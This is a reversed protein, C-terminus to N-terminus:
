RLGIPDWAAEFRRVGGRRRCNRQAIRGPIPKTRPVAESRFQSREPFSKRASNAEKSFSRRQVGPASTRRLAGYWPGGRADSSRSGLGPNAENPSPEQALNVDKGSVPEPCIPKTRPFPKSGCQPQKPLGQPRSPKSEAPAANRRSLGSSNRRAIPGPIPKTQPHRSDGEIFNRQGILVTRDPSPQSQPM